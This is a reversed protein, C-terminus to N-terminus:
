KGAGGRRIGAGGRRIGAVGRCTKAGPHCLIGAGPPAIKPCKTAQILYLSLGFFSYFIGSIQM